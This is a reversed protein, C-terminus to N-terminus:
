LSRHRLQRNLEAQTEGELWLSLKKTENELEDRGAPNGYTAAKLISISADLPLHFLNLPAPLWPFFPTVPFYPLKLLKSILDVNGLMPNIEDFGMSAVPYIELRAEKGVEVAPLLTTWDYEELRYRRNFPKKLGALGEPYIAVVEGKELLEKMNASSWEIFGYERLAAAVDPEFHTELDCLTYVKRAGVRRTRLSYSLMLAQWPLVSGQNGVLLCPGQEPVRDLGMVVLRWWKKELFDLLHDLKGLAQNDSLDLDGFDVAGAESEKM